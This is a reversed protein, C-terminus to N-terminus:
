ARRNRRPWLRELEAEIEIVPAQTFALAYLCIATGILRRHLPPSM